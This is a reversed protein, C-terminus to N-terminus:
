EAYETEAADEAVEGKTIDIMGDWYDQAGTVFKVKGNKKDVRYINVYGGVAEGNYYETMPVSVLWADNNQDLIEAEEVEVVMGAEQEEKTNKLAFDAALRIADTEKLKSSEEKAAAETKQEEGAATEAEATEAAAQDAAQVEQEAAPETAQETDSDESGGSGCACMTFMLMGCLLIALLKKMM